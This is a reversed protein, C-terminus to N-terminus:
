GSAKAGSAGYECVMETTAGGGSRFSWRHTVQKCVWAGDADLSVGSVTVRAEARAKPTGAMMLTLEAEGARVRRAEASVACRCEDESQYVERLTKLPGKDAAKERVERTAGGQRDRWRGRVEGFRASPKLTVRYGSSAILDGPGVKVEPMDQGSATKAGHRETAILRGDKPTIVAGIRQGLRTLLHQDSEETQALFPVKIAGLKEAVVPTLGNDSAIQKLIDAVTKGEWSRTRPEKLAGAGDAAKAIMVLERPWGSREIEEVVYTGFEVLGTMRYGISITLKAGERPRAIQPDADDLVVILQDSKFGAEDTIEVELVRASALANGDATLAIIPSDIM